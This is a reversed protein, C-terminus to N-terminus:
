GSPEALLGTYRKEESKTHRALAANARGKARHAVPWAFRSPGGTSRDLADLAAERPPNDSHYAHSGMDAFVANLGDVVVRFLPVQAAEDGVSGVPTASHDIRVEPNVDYVGPRTGGGIAPAMYAVLNPFAARIETAVGLAVARAADPLRDRQDDPVSLLIQRAEAAGKIPGLTIDQQAM